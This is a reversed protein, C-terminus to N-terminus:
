RSASTWRSGIVPESSARSTFVATRERMGISDSAQTRTSRPPPLTSTDRTSSPSDTQLSDCVMPETRRSSSNCSDPPSKFRNSLSSVSYVLVRRIGLVARRPSIAPKAAVPPLM